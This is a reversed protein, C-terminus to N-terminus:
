RLGPKTSRRNEIDAGSLIYAILAKVRPRIDDRIMVQKLTSQVEPEAYHEAIVDSLRPSVSREMEDSSVLSRDRLKLVEQIFAVYEHVGLKYMSLIAIFRQHATHGQESLFRVCDSPHKVNADALKEFSELSLYDYASFVAGDDRDVAAVTNVYAQYDDVESLGSPEGGNLAGANAGWCCAFAYGLFLAFGLAVQRM